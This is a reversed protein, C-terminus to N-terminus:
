KLKLETARQVDVKAGDQLLTQITDTIEIEGRLSPKIRKVADFVKDNFIYLGVLAWDSIYEKPKEVFREAV